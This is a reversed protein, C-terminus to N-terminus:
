ENINGGKEVGRYYIVIDVNKALIKLGEGSINYYYRTKDDTADIWGGNLSFGSDVTNRGKVSMSYIYYIWNDKQTHYTYTTIDNENISYKVDLTTVLDKTNEIITIYDDTISEDIVYTFHSYKMDESYKIILSQYETGTFEMVHGSNYYTQGDLQICAISGPKRTEWRVYTIVGKIEKDESLNAGDISEYKPPKLPAIVLDKGLVKNDVLEDYNNKDMVEYGTASFTHLMRSLKDDPSLSVNMLRVVYNGESPSRFLKPKGNTLWEMVELKFKREATYNYDTLNTTKTNSNNFNIAKTNERTSTNYELGLDTASMFLEADDMFYSILGSIPIEKYRVQSNRFFFPYQGGITDTKQELITDKFSSVKPNFRIKLQRDADSLFTDEFDPTCVSSSIPKSYYLTNLTDTVIGHQRIQYTYTIGQEVSRDTTVYDSFKSGTTVILSKIVDWHINDSSREIIFRANAAVKDGQLSLIVYGNEKAKATQYAQLSFNANTIEEKPTKGNYELTKTYGNITTFTFQVTCQKDDVYYKNNFTLTSTLYDKETSIQSNDNNYIQLGSDSLLTSNIDFLKFQYSYLPESLISTIYNVQIIRGIENNNKKIDFEKGNSSMAIQINNEAGICKGIAVSSYHLDELNATNDIYAIQFKYYTQAEADPFDFEIEGTQFILKFKEEEGEEEITTLTSIINSSNYNKVICAFGHVNAQSVAENHKFPIKVKGGQVFGPVTSGILPPYIIM